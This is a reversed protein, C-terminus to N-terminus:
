HELITVEAKQKQQYNRFAIAFGINFFGLPIIAISFFIYLIFLLTKDFRNLKRKKRKKSNSYYKTGIVNGLLIFWFPFFVISLTLLFFYQITKVLKM